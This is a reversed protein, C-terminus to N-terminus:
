LDNNNNEAIMQVVKLVRKEFDDKLEMQEKLRKYLVFSQTGIHYLDTNVNENGSIPTSNFRMKDEIMKHKETIDESIGRIILDLDEIQQGVVEFEAILKLIEANRDM